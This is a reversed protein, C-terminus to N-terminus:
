NIVAFCCLLRDLMDVMACLVSTSVNLNSHFKNKMTQPREFFSLQLGEILYPVHMLILHYLVKGFIIEFDVFAVEIQFHINIIRPSM